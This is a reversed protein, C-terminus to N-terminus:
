LLSGQTPRHDNKSHSLRANAIDIYEADLEIGIGVRDLKEAAIVTTGSGVFPDLITDGERSGLTILYSMLELPKCTPHNNKAVTPDKDSDLLGTSKEKKSAKSIIAFPFTSAWKTHKRVWADLDFYRSFDGLVNDSVLLNAPFRGQPNQEYAIRSYRGYATDTPNSPEDGNVGYTHRDNDQVPIRCNDLWTIGKSSKLAQDVYTKESLPKMAVIVVEIAPKPQFGAYSGHLSKAENTIPDNDTFKNGEPYYDSPRFGQEKNVTMSRKHGGSQTIRVVRREKGLRKDVLKSINGAKPFGSSYTWYIPTFDIRFGADEINAIMHRQVDSRPASMVFCWAGPKLVRLCEKWIDVSPVAKDWDKGMFNYGYPPDTCVLDISDNDFKRLEQLADSHIIM